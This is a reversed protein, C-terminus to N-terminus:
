RTLTNSEREKTKSSDFNITGEVTYIPRMKVQDFIKGIYVGIIGLIFIIVGALFWISAILSAWGLVAIDGYFHRILIYSVFIISSFVLGLGMALVIHLPKNSFSFLVTFGLSLLSRLSYGSKRSTNGERDVDVFGTKFGLWKVHAPLFRTSERMQSLSDVVDRHYIGFNGM